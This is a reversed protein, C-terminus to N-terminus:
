NLIKLAAQTIWTLLCVPLLSWPSTSLCLHSDRLGLGLFDCPGPPLPTVSLPAEKARSEGQQTAEARSTSMPTQRPCLTIVNQHKAFGGSHTPVPGPNQMQTQYSRQAEKAPQKLSSMPETRM